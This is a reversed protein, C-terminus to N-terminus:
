CFHILFVFPFVGRITPNHFETFVGTVRPKMVRHEFVVSSGTSVSSELHLFCFRSLVALFFPATAPKTVLPACMSSSYAPWRYHVAEASGCTLAWEARACSPSFAALSRRDRSASTARYGCADM